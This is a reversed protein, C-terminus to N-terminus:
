GEQAAMYLPTCGDNRAQNVNAGLEKILVRVAELM